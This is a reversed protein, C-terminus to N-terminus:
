PVDKDALLLTMMEQAASAAVRKLLARDTNDGIEYTIGPIGFTSHAWYASTTLTPTTSAERNVHYEPVRKQLGALWRAAFLAPSAPKEDPQTYFVDKRTSHFDLHLFLRGSDKLVTIQEAAAKTEPQAFGGWDRNLDVHGMNHRWHGADVGDPNILPIVLVHFEQRFTRALETDGTIEEIFRMLALSGTTEPPHQRGIISVHRAASENGIDLRFLPRGQVSRGFERTTVYPLRELTHAWATMEERSVLEQAAVWLPQQGIELRLTCENEGPGEAYAEAPLMVWQAGDTSIKPRYRVSGGQCRLRVTISAEKAASVKFAFWASDNVPLNEPRIVLGYEDKGIAECESLRARPFTADFVVGEPAFTWRQEKTPAAKERSCGAALLVLCAAFSWHRTFHM